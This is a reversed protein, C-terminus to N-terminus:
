FCFLDFIFKKLLIKNIGSVSFFGYGGLADDIVGMHLDGNFLAAAFESTKQLLAPCFAAIKEGHFAIRLSGCKETGCTGCDGEVGIQKVVPLAVAGHLDPPLTFKGKVPFLSFVAKFPFKGGFGGKLDPKFLVKRLVFEL